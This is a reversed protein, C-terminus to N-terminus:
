TWLIEHYLVTILTILDSILCPKKWFSSLINAEKEKVKIEGFIDKSVTIITSASLWGQATKIEQEM